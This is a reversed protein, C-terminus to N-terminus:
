IEEFRVDDFFSSKVDGTVWKQRWKGFNGQAPQVIFLFLFKYPAFCEGEANEKQEPQGM